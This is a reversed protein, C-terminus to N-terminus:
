NETNLSWHTTTSKGDFLGFLVLSNHNDALMESHIVRQGWKWNGKRMVISFSM